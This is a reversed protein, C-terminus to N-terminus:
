RGNTTISGARSICLYLKETAPRRPDLAGALIEVDSYVVGSVCLPVYFIDAPRRRYFLDMGTRVEFTFRGDPNGARMSANPLYPIEQLADACDVAQTEYSQGARNYDDRLRMLDYKNRPVEVEILELPSDGLNQTSHFAGPAIRVVSGATVTVGHELGQTRGRGGLCILYTLKRPHVHMSTSHPADIHLMWVDFFDDVYARFEYGWPKPIVENLHSEEGFAETGTRVGSRTLELLASVDASSAPFNLQAPFAREEGLAHALQM